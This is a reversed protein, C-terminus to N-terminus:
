GETQLYANFRGPVKMHFVFGRMDLTLDAVRFLHNRILYPVPSCDDTKKRWLKTYDCDCKFPKEGTHTRQHYSLITSTTFHKECVVCKFPKEGTHIRQHIFLRDKRRFTKQCIDCEFPKEGTHTREHNRVDVSTTFCKNGIDCEFPDKLAHSAEQKGVDNEEILYIHSAMEIQCNSNMEKKLCLSSLGPMSILGREQESMDNVSSAALLLVEDGDINPELKVHNANHQCNGSIGPSIAFPKAEHKMLLMPQTSGYADKDENSSTDQAEQKVSTIGLLMPTEM